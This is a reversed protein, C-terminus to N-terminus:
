PWDVSGGSAGSCACDELRAIPVIHDREHTVEAVILEGDDPMIAASQNRETSRHIVRVGHGPQHHHVAERDDRVELPEVDGENPGPPVPPEEPLGILRGLSEDVGIGVTPVGRGRWGFHPFLVM